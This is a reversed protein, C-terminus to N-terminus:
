RNRSSLAESNEAYSKARESPLGKTWTPVPLARRGCGTTRCSRSRPGACRASTTTSKVPLDPSSTTSELMGRLSGPVPVPDLDAAIM